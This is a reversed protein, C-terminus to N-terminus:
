YPEFPRLVKEILKRNTIDKTIIQVSQIKDDRAEIRHSLSQFGEREIMIEGSPVSVLSHDRHKNSSM